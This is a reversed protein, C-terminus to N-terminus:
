EYGSNLSNAITASSWNTVREASKFDVIYCLLSNLCMFLCASVTVSLLEARDVIKNHNFPKFKFYCLLGM